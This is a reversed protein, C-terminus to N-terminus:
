IHNLFINIKYSVSPNSVEVCSVVDIDLIVSDTTLIFIVYIKLYLFLM